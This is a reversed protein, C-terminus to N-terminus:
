ESRPRALSGVLSLASSDDNGVRERELARFHAM